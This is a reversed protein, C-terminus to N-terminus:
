QLLMWRRVVVDDRGEAGDMHATLTLKVERDEKADITFQAGGVRGAEVELSKEADGGAEGIQDLWGM